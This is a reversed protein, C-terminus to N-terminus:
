VSAGTILQELIWWVWVGFSTPQVPPLYTFQAATPFQIVQLAQKPINSLPSRPFASLIIMFEVAEWHPM